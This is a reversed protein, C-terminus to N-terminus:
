WATGSMAYRLALGAARGGRAESGAIANRRLPDQGHSAVPTAFGGIRACFGRTHSRQEVRIPASGGCGAFSLFHSSDIKRDAQTVPLWLNIEELPHSYERDM